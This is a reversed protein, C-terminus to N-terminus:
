GGSPSDVNAWQSVNELDPRAAVFRSWDRYAVDAYGLAFALVRQRFREADALEPLPNSPGQYRTSARVHSRALIAAQVKLVDIFDAIKLAAFNVRAAHPSIERVQFSMAGDIAFGLYASSAAQSARECAIVKEARELLAQPSTERQRYTDLASPRAEKFELLVNRKEEHSKGSVLVVYRYRGMSGIGSIRGCVDHIDFFNKEVPTKWRKRFDELLRTAQAKEADSLNFYKLLSRKIQRNGAKEETLDAIFRSRKVEKQKMILQALPVCDGPHKESYDLDIFKGKKFSGQVTQLYSSLGAMVAASQNELTDKREQAALMMNVAFRCVDFDFRGLTTEDFDNIDYHILGDEAKYTGYNESHIDGVLEMEVGDSTLLPLPIMSHELVDRAFLHFTGRFFAFASEAMRAIKFRMLQPSRKAYDRNFTTFEQLADRM